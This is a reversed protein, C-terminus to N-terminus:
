LFGAENLREEWERPLEGEKKRKRIKYAWQGLPRGEERHSTPISTMQYKEKYRCFLEVYEEFLIDEQSEWRM